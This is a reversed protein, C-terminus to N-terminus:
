CALSEDGDELSPRAQKFSSQEKSPGSTFRSFRGFATSFLSSRGRSVSEGVSSVVSAVSSRMSSLLGGGFLSSTSSTHELSAKRAAKGDLSQRHVRTTEDQEALFAVARSASEIGALHCVFSESAEHFGGFRSSAEQKFSSQEKFSQEAM